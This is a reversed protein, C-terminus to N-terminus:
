FELSDKFADYQAISTNPFWMSLSIDARGDALSEAIQDEPIGVLEVKLKSQASVITKVLNAISIDYSSNSYAIKISDIKAGKTCSLSIMALFILLCIMMHKM